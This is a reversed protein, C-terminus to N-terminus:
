GGSASDDLPLDAERMDVLGDPLEVTVSHEDVDSVFVLPILLGDDLVLLDHAPNAEVGVVRGLLLGDPDHVERGILDHVWLEGDPLSGLMEATLTSGRLQEAADRDDVDSFRILWGDRHRRASEVVLRRDEAFLVAGPEFREARDTIAVVTVEGKVGHPRGVRAM